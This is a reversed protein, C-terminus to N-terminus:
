RRLEQSLRLIQVGQESQMLHAGMHAQARQIRPDVVPGQYPGAEAGFIPAINNYARARINPDLYPAWLPASILAFFTVGFATSATVQAAKQFFKQM